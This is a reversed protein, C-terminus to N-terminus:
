VQILLRWTAGLHRWQVGPAENQDAETFQVPQERVCSLVTGDDVAGSTAQLVADIADAVAALAAYGEAQGVAKVTWLSEVLVRTGANMGTTDISGQHQFIVFPWPAGPPAIDAYVGAEGVTISPLAGITADGTLTEYLWQGARTLENVTM